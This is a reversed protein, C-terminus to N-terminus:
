DKLKEASLLEAAEARFRVLEDEESQNKEMWEVAQDFWKRAEEENGLQWYTTALFFANWSFHKDKLLERAKKLSRIAAPWNGARYHAVGLTNWHSGENPALEVARIALALSQAPDRLNLEPCTALLWALDNHARAYKPDLKIATQYRAIAEAPKQSNLWAAAIRYHVVPDNPGHRLAEQIEAETEAANGKESLAVALSAHPWSWNPFLRNAERWAAIAEDPRGKRRLMAGLNYHAAWYNPKLRIAEMNAAIAEDVKGHDGLASGLYRYPVASQKRVANAATAYRIVEEAQRPKVEWCYYLVLQMNIWFDNPHLQQAKRLLAVAGELDGIDRLACGLLYLTHAPLQNVQESGALNKLVERDKREWADRLQGRWGDSDVAKALALLRKREIDDNGLSSRALAWSDLAAVLETSVSSSALRDAAEEIFVADIDVHYEAFARRYERDARAVDFMNEDQFEVYSKAESLVEDRIWELRIVMELDDRLKRVSRLLEDDGDGALLIESRKVASLAEAWQRQEQRRDAEHLALTAEREVAARRGARDRVAWGASVAALLTALVIFSGTILAAKNRRGFKRFRYMPSPPCAQVPEDDLYSQVDAAFANATEYRRNRDKELCKMVIWDLEGGVTQRLRRPETRRREAVTTALDAALTSLRASPRPPEEERIIRRLEDYSAVHLRDKDFPTAGTLLEYLLVGLSYIDSRTDVGLPSLEAQEPSMYLPTGIMQAYGVTLTHETLREGIAKAVGFDIVKPAPMGDQIAVLVNSPKIDRHLVGKQHAHQVARCVQTFLELRERATLQCQDCYETIPVGQVLEMVFYPRGKDTEGADLVKAINPHDMLAVAQREAEFRAVVQRTDMGPKIVKLAVKRRVPKAQEALFVVGFGGEGISELLKYPGILAGPRETADDLDTSDWGLTLDRGFLAPENLFSGADTHARLLADVEARLEAQGGCAVDLFAAREADSARELAQEFISRVSPADNVM